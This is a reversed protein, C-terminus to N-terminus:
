SGGTATPAPPESPTEPLPRMSEWTRLAGAVTLAAFAALVGFLIPGIVLAVSSSFGENAGIIVALRERPGTPLSLLLAVWYGFGLFFGLLPAFVWSKKWGVVGWISLIPLAAWWYPVLVVLLLLPQSVLIFLLLLLSERSLGRKPAASAGESAAAPPAGATETPGPAPTPNPESTEAEGVPQAAM